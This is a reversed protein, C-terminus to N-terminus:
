SGSAGKPSSCEIEVDGLDTQGLEHSAKPGVSLWLNYLSAFVETEQAIDDVSLWLHSTSSQM